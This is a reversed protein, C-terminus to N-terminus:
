FRPTSSMRLTTSTLGSNLQNSSDPTLLCVELLSQVSLIVESVVAAWCVRVEYRRDEDLDNLLYWSDLGRPRGESPFAVSLSTALTSNAQSIVPLGLAQLRSGSDPLTVVKPATFIVKETNALATTALLAFLSILCALFSM